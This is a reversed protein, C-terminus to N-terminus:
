RPSGLVGGRIGNSALEWWGSILKLNTLSAVFAVIIINYLTYMSRHCWFHRISMSQLLGMHHEPDCILHYLAYQAPVSRSQTDLRKVACKIENVPPFELGESLGYILSSMECKESRIDLVRTDQCARPYMGCRVHSSFTLGFSFLDLDHALLSLTRRPNNMHYFHRVWSSVSKERSALDLTCCLWGRMAEHSWSRASDFICLNGWGLHPGFLFDSLLVSTRLM